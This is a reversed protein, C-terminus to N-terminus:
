ARDSSESLPAPICFRLDPPWVAASHFHGFKSPDNGNPAKGSCWEYREAVEVHTCNEPTRAVVSSPRPQRPLGSWLLGRSRIKLFEIYRREAAAIEGHTFSLILEEFSMMGFESGTPAFSLKPHKQNKKYKEQM